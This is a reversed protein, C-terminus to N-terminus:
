RVEHVLHAGSEVLLAVVVDPDHHGTAEIRIADPVELLRARRDVRVGDAGVDTAGRRDVEGAVDLLDVSARDGFAAADRADRVGRPQPRDVQRGVPVASPPGADARGTGLRAPSRTAANRAVM